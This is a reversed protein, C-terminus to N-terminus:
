LDFSNIDVIYSAIKTRIFSQISEMGWAINVSFVKRPESMRTALRDLRKHTNYSITADNSLNDCVCIYAKDSAHYTIGPNQQAQDVASAIDTVIHEVGARHEHEFPPLNDAPIVVRNDHYAEKVCDYVDIFDPTDSCAMVFWQRRLKWGLRPYPTKIPACSKDGPSDCMNHSVRQRKAGDTSPPKWLETESAKLKCIFKDFSNIARELTENAINVHTDCLETVLPARAAVPFQDLTDHLIPVSIRGTKPHVSFPSKLTHNSHKSVNVDIRPGIMQWVAHEYNSWLDLLVFGEGRKVPLPRRCYNEITTLAQEPSHFAACVESQLAEVVSDDILQLFKKRQFPMELMGLGGQDIPSIAVSRFFAVVLTESIVKFNPHKIMYSWIKKGKEESPSLWGIIACRAEDSMCCAREDCVWLHGGRRGSYVALIHKFGFHEQLSQKVVELGLAVLPWNRDCSPLDDKSIGEYDDIDIDFVLERCVPVMSGSVTSRRGPETTYIAGINLKGVSPKSVMALLMEATHCSQWRVFCHGSIGEWGWERKHAGASGRVWERSFLEHVEKYPFMTAYYLKTARRLADTNNVNFRPIRPPPPGMPVPQVATATTGMATVKKVERVDAERQLMERGIRGQRLHLEVATRTQLHTPTPLTSM